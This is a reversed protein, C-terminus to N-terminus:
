SPADSTCCSMMARESKFSAVAHGDGGMDIGEGVIMQRRAVLPRGQDIVDRLHLIGVPQVARHFQQIGGHRAAPAVADGDIAGTAREGIGLHQILYVAQRAHQRFIQAQHRAVAHQQAARVRRHQGDGPEGHHFRTQDDNGGHRQQALFFQHVHDVLGLDARGEAILAECGFKDGRL